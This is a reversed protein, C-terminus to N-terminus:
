PPASAVCVLARCPGTAALQQALLGGMSHGVIIPPQRMKAVRHQLAALYDGMGLSGLQERDSPVHGPLAPVHCDYGAACFRSVWPAFHAPNSFAGHVFLVSPLM